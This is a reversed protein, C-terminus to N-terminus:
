VCTRSPGEAGLAWGRRPGDGGRGRRPRGRQAPWQATAAGTRTGRSGVEGRVSPAPQQKSGRPGVHWLFGAGAGGRWPRRLMQVRCTGDEGGGEGWSAAASAARPLRKRERVQTRGVWSGFWTCSARHCLHRITEM